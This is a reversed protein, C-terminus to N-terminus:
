YPHSLFTNITKIQIIFQLFFLAITKNHFLAHDNRNQDGRKKTSFILPGFGFYGHRISM